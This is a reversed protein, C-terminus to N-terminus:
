HRDSLLIFRLQLLIVTPRRGSWPMKLSKDVSDEDAEGEGPDASELRLAKNLLLYYKPVSRYVM